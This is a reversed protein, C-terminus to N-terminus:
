ASEEVLAILNALPPSDNDTRWALGLPMECEDLEALRIFRVGPILTTNASAPVIAIGLGAAVMSLAVINDAGYQTVRPTFNYRSFHGLLRDFYGPSASRVGWVFPEGSLDALRAPPKTALPSAEPVALILSDVHMLKTSIGTPIEDGLYLIGADLKAQQLREMQPGSLLPFVEFAVGEYRERYEGLLQAVLPVWLHTVTIGLSLKGSRGNGIASLRAIVQERRELLEQADEYLARGTITLQMGQAHRTFLQTGLSDELLKIQRTLAPQAVHVRRSAGTVSGEEVVAIFYQLQRFEM